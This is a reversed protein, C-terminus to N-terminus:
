GNPIASITIGTPINADYDSSSTDLRIVTNKSYIPFAPGTSFPQQSIVGAVLINPSNGSPTLYFRIETLNSALSDILLSPIAISGDTYSITGVNTILISDDSVKKVILTGAGDDTLYVSFSQNALTINFNTSRFSGETAAVNFKVNFTNDSGEFINLRKHVTVSMSNSFISSTTGNILASLKSFYFNKELKNLGTELDIINEKHRIDSMASISTSTSYIQGGGIVYFKAGGTQDGYIHYGITTSTSYYNADGNGRADALCGGNNGGVQVFYGGNQQTTENIVLGGGSTIRMREAPAVGHTRTYFAMYGGYQGHM